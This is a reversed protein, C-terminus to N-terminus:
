FIDLKSHFVDYLSIGSYALRALLRAPEHEALLQTETAADCLEVALFTFIVTNQKFSSSHIKDGTAISKFHRM